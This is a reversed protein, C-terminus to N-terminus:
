TTRAPKNRTYLLRVAEDVAVKAMNAYTGAKEQYKKLLFWEAAISDALATTIAKNVATGNATNFDPVDFVISGSGMSSIDATAALLSRVAEDLMDGLVAEDRSTPVLADYLFNGDETHASAAARSIDRRAAALITSDTITYTHAM